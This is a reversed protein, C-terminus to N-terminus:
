WSASAGQAIALAIADVPRSEVPMAFWFQWAWLPGIADLANKLLDVVQAESDAHPTV